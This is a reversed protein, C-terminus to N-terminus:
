AWGFTLTGGHPVHMGPRDGGQDADPQGREGPHCARTGCGGRRSPDGPVPISFAALLSAPNPDAVEPQRKGLLRRTVPIVGGDERSRQGPTNPKKVSK